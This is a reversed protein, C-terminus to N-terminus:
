GDYLVRCLPELFMRAAFPPVAKIRVWFPPRSSTDAAATEESVSAILSRYIHGGTFGGSPDDALVLIM